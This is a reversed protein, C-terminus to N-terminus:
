GAECEVGWGYRRNEALLDDVDEGVVWTRNGAPRCALAAEIAALHEPLVVPRHGHGVDANGCNTCVFRHPGARWVLHPQGEPTGECTPCSVVLMGQQIWAPPVDLGRRAMLRRMTLGDANLPHDPFRDLSCGFHAEGDVITAGM